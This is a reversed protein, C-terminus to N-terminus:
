RGLRKRMFVYAAGMVAISALGAGAEPGPALLAGALAPSTVTLGALVVFAFKMTM